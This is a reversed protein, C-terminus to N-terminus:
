LLRLEDRAAITLTYDADREFGSEKLVSEITTRAYFPANNHFSLHALMIRLPVLANSEYLKDTTSTRRDALLRALIEGAYRNSLHGYDGKIRMKLPYPYEGFMLLDEDHNSEFILIDADRISDYIEDTVIGTDTVAALKEGGCTITYSLPEAADHSIAFASITIYNHKESNYALPIAPKKDECDPSENYNRFECSGHLEHPLKTAKSLSLITEDSCEPDSHLRLTDGAEVLQLREPPIYKFNETHEATGRSTIFVANSCKRGIARVSKVHDTHEHTVLVADVAEPDIGFKDLAGIIRKATLGVDLIINYSGAMILYSNGASSSGISIVEIAM